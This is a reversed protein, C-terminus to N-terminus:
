TVQEFKRDELNGCVSGFPSFFVFFIEISVEFLSSKSCFPSFFVFFIEISVEFLFSKFHFPFFFM